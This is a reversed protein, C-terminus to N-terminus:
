WCNVWEQHRVTKLYLDFNIVFVRRHTCQIHARQTAVDEGMIVRSDINVHSSVDGFGFFLICTSSPPSFLDFIRFHFCSHTKIIKIKHLCVPPPQLNPPRSDVRTYFFFFFCLSTAPVKRMMVKPQPACWREYGGVFFACLCQPTHTHTHTHTHLNPFVSCGSHAENTSVSPTNIPPGWSGAAASSVCPLLPNASHLRRFVAQGELSFVIYIIFTEETIAHFKLGM